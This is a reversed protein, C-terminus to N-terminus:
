LMEVEGLLTGRGGHGKRLGKAGDTARRRARKAGGQEERKRHGQRDGRHRLVAALIRAMVVLHLVEVPDHDVGARQAAIGLVQDARDFHEAALGEVVGLGIREALGDAAQGAHLGRVEARADAARDDAAEVARAHLHEAVAQAGAVHRRDADVVRHADFGEQGVLDFHQLARRGQEVAAARDAARDVHDFAAHGMRDRRFRDFTAGLDAEAGAVVLLGRHRAHVGGGRVALQDEVDVAQVALGAVVVDRAVGLMRMVAVRVMFGACAPAQGVAEHAGIGAGEAHGVDALAPVEAHGRAQEVRAVADRAVGVLVVVAAAFFVAVFADADAHVLAAGFQAAAQAPQAEEVAQAHFHRVGIVGMGLEFAIFDAGHELVVGDLRASFQHVQVPRAPIACEAQLGRTAIEDRDAVFGEHRCRIRAVGAQEPDALAIQALDLELEARAVVAVRDVHVCRVRDARRTREIGGAQRRRQAPVEAVVEVQREADVACLARRRRFLQIGIAQVHRGAAELEAIRIEIDFRGVADLSAQVPVAPVQRQACRQVVDAEAVVHIEGVGAHRFLVERRAHPVLAIGAEGTGLEVQLPRERSFALPVQASFVKPSM